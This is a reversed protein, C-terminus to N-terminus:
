LLCGPVGLMYGERKSIRLKCWIEPKMTALITRVRQTASLLQRIDAPSDATLMPVLIEQLFRLGDTQLVGIQKLLSEVKPHMMQRFRLNLGEAYGELTKAMAEDVIYVKNAASHLVGRETPIAELKKLNQMLTPPASALNSAIVHFFRRLWSSAHTHKLQNLLRALSILM